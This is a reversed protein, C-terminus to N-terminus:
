TLTYPNICYVKVNLTQSRCALLCQLDWVIMFILHASINVKWYCINIFTCPHPSKFHATLNMGNDNYKIMWDLDDENDQVWECAGHDFNCDTLFGACVCVCVYDCWIVTWLSFCFLLVLSSTKSEKLPAAQIEKPEEPDFVPGFEDPVSLCM